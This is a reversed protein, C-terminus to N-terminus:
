WKVLNNNGLVPLKKPKRDILSNKLIVETNNMLDPIPHHWDGFLRKLKDKTGEPSDDQM